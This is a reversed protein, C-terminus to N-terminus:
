VITKHFSSFQIYINPRFIDNTSERRIKNKIPNHHLHVQVSVQSEVQEIMEWRVQDHFEEHLQGDLDWYIDYGVRNTNTFNM